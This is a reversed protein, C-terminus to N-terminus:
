KGVNKGQLKLKGVYTRERSNADLEALQKDYLKNVLPIEAYYECSPRKKFPGGTCKKAVCARPPAFSGDELTGVSAWKCRPAMSDAAM